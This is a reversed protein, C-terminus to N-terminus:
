IDVGTLDRVSYDYESNSLRRALVLGPDGANRRIEYDRVSRFWQVAQKREESSPHKEAKKPPMEGAELREMLLSWRQGDQVLTGMSHYKSLDMEAEPDDKGHCEYCYTQFFPQVNRVFQQELNTQTADAARAIGGVALASLVLTLSRIQMTKPLPSSGP